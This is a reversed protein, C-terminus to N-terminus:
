SGVKFADIFFGLMLGIKFYNCSRLFSAKQLEKPEKCNFQRFAGRILNKDSQLPLLQTPFPSLQHKKGRYVFYSLTEICIILFLGIFGDWILYVRLFMVLTGFLNGFFFGFFLYLLFVTFTKSSSNYRSKFIVFIRKLSFFSRTNPIMQM